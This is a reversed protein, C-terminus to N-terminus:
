PELVDFELPVSPEGSPVTCAHVGAYRYSTGHHHGASGDVGFRPDGGASTLPRTIAEYRSTSATARVTASVLVVETATKLRVSRPSQQTVTPQTVTGSSEHRCIPLNVPLTSHSPFQETQHARTGQDRTSRYEDRCAGRRRSWGCLWPRGDIDVDVLHDMRVVGAHRERDHQRASRHRGLLGGKHLIVDVETLVVDVREGDM